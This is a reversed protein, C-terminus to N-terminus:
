VFCSVNVKCHAAYVTVAAVNVGAETLAVSVAAVDVVLTASVGYPLMPMMLGDWGGTAGGKLEVTADSPLGTAETGPDVRRAAPVSSPRVISSVAGSSATRASLPSPPALVPAQQEMASSAVRLVALITAQELAFELAGIVLKVRNTERPVGCGLHRGRGPLGGAEGGAPAKRMAYSLQICDSRSSAARGSGPGVVEEGAGVVRGVEGRGLAHSTVVRAAGSGCGSGKGEEHGGGGALLTARTSDGVNGNDEDAAATRDCFTVARRPLLGDAARQWLFLRPKSTAMDGRREERGDDERTTTRAAPEVAETTEASLSPAPAM